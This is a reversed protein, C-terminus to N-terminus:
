WEKSGRRRESGGGGVQGDGGKELYNSRLDIDIVGIGLLLGGVALM